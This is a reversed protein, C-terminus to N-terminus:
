HLLALLFPQKNPIAVACQLPDLHLHGIKIAPLVACNPAKMAVACDLNVLLLNGMSGFVMNLVACGLVGLVAFASGMELSGM